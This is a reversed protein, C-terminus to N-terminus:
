GSAACEDADPRSWDQREMVAAVKRFEAALELLTERTYLETAQSALKLLLEARYRYEEPTSM